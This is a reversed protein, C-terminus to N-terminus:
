GHNGEELKSWRDPALRALDARLRLVALDSARAELLADFDRAGEALRFLDLADWPSVLDAHEELRPLRAEVVGRRRTLRAETRPSSLHVKPTRTPPWTALCVRLAEGPALGAPYLRHHLWDFVLPVACAAALPALDAVGHVLDHEVALRERVGPPLTAVRRAWRRRAVHAERVTGGVHTVILGDVAGLGDLLAALVSLRGAAAEAPRAEEAALSLPLPAHVTLRVGAARALAGVHALADGAAAVQAHAEAPEGPALAAHLRYLRIGAQSLWGLGDRLYALSVSLHGGEAPRRGDLVRLGPRGYLGPGCGIRM